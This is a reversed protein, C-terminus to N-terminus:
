STIRRRRHHSEMPGSHVGNPIYVFGLRPPPKVAEASLAPGDRGAVPAGFCRGHGAPFTRRPLARKTIFM